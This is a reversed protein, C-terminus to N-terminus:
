QDTTRDTGNEALTATCFQRLVAALEARTVSRGPRLTGNQYGSLLGQGVAWELGSRAWASVDEADTFRSLDAGDATEGQSAGAYDAYKTLVLALQERSLAGDPGFSRATVGSLIGQETCWAVATAYWVGPDVDRFSAAQEPQQSGGLRWLLQAMQARTVTGGPTFRDGSTGSMLGLDMVYEVAEYYWAGAKVDSPLIVKDFARVYYSQEQKGDASHLTFLYLVSDPDQTGSASLLGSAAREKLVESGRRILTQVSLGCAQGAALLVKGSWPALTGQDSLSDYVPTSEGDLMEYVGDGNLDTLYDVSVWADATNPRVYFASEGAVRNIQCAYQLSSYKRFTGGSRRYLDVRLTQQPFDMQEGDMLFDAWRSDAAAANGVLACVLALAVLLASWRKTQIM